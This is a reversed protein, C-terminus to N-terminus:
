RILSDMHVVYANNENQQNKKRFAGIAWSWQEADRPTCFLALEELKTSVWPHPSMGSGCAGEFRKKEKKKKKKETV